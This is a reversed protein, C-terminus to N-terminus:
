KVKANSYRTTLEMLELVYFKQHLFEDTVYGSGDCVAVRRILEHYLAESGQGVDQHGVVDVDVRNELSVLKYWENYINKIWTNESYKIYLFSLSRTWM